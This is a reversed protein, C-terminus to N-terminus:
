NDLLHNDITNIFDYFEYFGRDTLLEEINFIERNFDQINYKENILKVIKIIENINKQFLWYSVNGKLLNAIVDLVSKPNLEIYKILIDFIFNTSNGLNGNTLELVQILIDIYKQKVEMKQFLNGFWHIEDYIENVTLIKKQKLYELVYDWLYIIRKLIKEKESSEKNDIYIKYTFFMM